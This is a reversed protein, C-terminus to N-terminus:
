QEKKSFKLEYFAKLHNIFKMVQRGDDPVCRYIKDKIQLEIYRGPMFPLVPYSATAANLDVAEGNIEGKLTILKESLSLIGSGVECFKCRAKDIIHIKTKLTLVTDPANKISEKVKKFIERSWDSVYRMEKGIRSKLHLFSYKDSMEEFGCESCFINTKNKVAVSFEKGCHPCMYLVNELGEIVDSNCYRCLYKEQDRYADFMLATNATTEIEEISMSELEEASLLKYIDIYTRGPRTKKAWKPQAFYTGTTRAAYVDVGLWKLFKYTGRPIPTSLGDECMLGAPYIVLPNGSDTVAKIKKMENLSTQFQQKPIVALKKLLFHVPRSLSRYFSNSAVFTMPRSTACILNAADLQAEHNAIVVYAGKVGKIENRLTKKRFLLTSTIFGITQALRYVLIDPKVYDKNM